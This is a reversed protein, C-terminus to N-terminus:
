QAMRADFIGSPVDRGTSAHGQGEGRRRLRRPVRLFATERGRVGIEYIPLARSTSSFGVPKLSTRLHSHLSNCLLCRDVLSAVVGFLEGGPVGSTGLGEDDDRGDEPPGGVEDAEDPEDCCSNMIRGTTSERSRSAAATLAPTSMEVYLM